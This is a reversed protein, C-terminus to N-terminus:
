NHETSKGPRCLFRPASKSELSQNLWGWGVTVFCKAQLISDTSKFFSNFRFYPQLSVRHHLFFFFIMINYLLKKPGYVTHTDAATGAPNSPSQPASAAATGAPNSPSQPASAAATGAARHPPATGARRWHPRREPGCRAAHKGRTPASPATRERLRWRDTSGPPPPAACCVPWEGQLHKHVAPQVYVRWFMVCRLRSSQKQKINKSQAPRGWLWGQGHSRRCILALSDNILWSTRQRNSGTFRAYGTEHELRPSRPLLTDIQHPFFDRKHASQLHSHCLWQKCKGKIVRLRPMQLVSWPATRM